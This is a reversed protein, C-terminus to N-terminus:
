LVMRNPEGTGVPKGRLQNSRTEPREKGDTRRRGHRKRGREKGRVRRLVDDNDTTVQKGEGRPMTRM